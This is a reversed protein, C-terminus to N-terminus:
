MATGSVRRASLVSADHYRPCNSMGTTWIVPETPLVVVFSIIAETTDCLYRVSLVASFKLLSM